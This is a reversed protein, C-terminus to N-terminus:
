RSRRSPLRMATRRPSREQSSPKRVRHLVHFRRMNWYSHEKLSGEDSHFMTDEFLCLVHEESVVLLVVTEYKDELFLVNGVDLKRKM